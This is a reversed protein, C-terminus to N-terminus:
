DLRVVGVQASKAEDGGRGGGRPDTSGEEGTEGSLFGGPNEKEFGRKSVHHVRDFPHINKEETRSPLGTPLVPGLLARVDRRPLHKRPDIIRKSLKTGSPM